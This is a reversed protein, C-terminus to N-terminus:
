QKNASYAQQTAQAAPWGVFYHNSHYVCALGITLGAFLLGISKAIPNRPFVTLWLDLFYGIGAAIVLYIFPMLVDLSIAGGLGIIVICIIALTIFLPTRLLRVNRAYVYCGVLFMVASFADLLPARGLWTAPSDSNAVVLHYPISVIREVIDMVPPITSPLGLWTMILGPDKYLAWGLPAAAVLLVLAGLSVSLLHKKFIYDITKWQWICGAIIFWILGPVYIFVGAAVFCALLALWSGSKKLWFGLATLVFVGTLLVEPTGMRATHLFWASLGFLLSGIIATKTDHWQRLLWCFLGLVLAGFLVATLRTLLLNDGGVFALGRLLLTFPANLPNHLLEGLHQAAYMSRVESGSYGPLLSNLKWLLAAGLLIALGGYLALPRWNRALINLPRNRDFLMSAIM